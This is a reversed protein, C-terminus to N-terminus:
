FGLLTRVHPLTAAKCSPYFYLFVVLDVERLDVMLTPMLTNTLPIKQETMALILLSGAHM